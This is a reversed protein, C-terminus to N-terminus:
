YKEITKEGNGNSSINEDKFRLIAAIVSDTVERFMQIFSSFINTAEQCRFM